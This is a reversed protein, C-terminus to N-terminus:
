FDITVRGMGDPIGSGDDGSLGLVLGTTGGAVAVVGVVTWFWWKKYIPVGTERVKVDPEKDKRVPEDLSPLFPKPDPKPQKRAVVKEPRKVTEPKRAAPEEEPIDEVPEKKLKTGVPEEAPPPSLPVVALPEDSPKVTPPSPPPPPPPPKPPPPKAAVVPKAKKELTVEIELNRGKEIQVERRVPKYGPHAVEIVHAGKGINKTLVLPTQGINHGDLFVEAGAVNARVKVKSRFLPGVVDVWSKLLVGRLSRMDSRSRKRVQEIIRSEQVDVLTMVLLYRGPLKQIESHLVRQARVKMGIMVLCNTDSGSCGVRLRLRKIGGPPAKLVKLSPYREALSRLHKGLNGLKKAGVFKSEPNLVLIRRPSASQGFGSGPILVLFSLIV